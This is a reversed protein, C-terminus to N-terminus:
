VRHKLNDGLATDMDINDEEIISNLPTIGPPPPVNSLPPLTELVHRVGDRVKQGIGQKPTSSSTLFQQINGQPKQNKKKAKAGTPKSSPEPTTGSPLSSPPTEPDMTSLLAHGSANAISPTSIPSTSRGEFTPTTPPHDSLIECSESTSFRVRNSKNASIM